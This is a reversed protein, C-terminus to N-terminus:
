CREFPAEGPRDCLIDAWSALKAKIDDESAGRPMKCSGVCRGGYSLWYILEQM